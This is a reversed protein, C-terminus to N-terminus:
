IRYKRIMEVHMKIRTNNLCKYTKRYAKTVCKDKRGKVLPYCKMKFVNAFSPLFYDKGLSRIVSATFHMVNKM